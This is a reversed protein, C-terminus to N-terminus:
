WIYTMPPNPFNSLKTVDSFLNLFSSFFSFNQCVFNYQGIVSFIFPLLVHTGRISLIYTAFVKGRPLFLKQTHRHPNWDSTTIRGRHAAPSKVTFFQSKVTFFQSKVTFFQSKVTFVTFFKVNPSKVDFYSFCCYIKRHCLM